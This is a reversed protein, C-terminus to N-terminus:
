REQSVGGPARVADSWGFGLGEDTLLDGRREGVGVGLQGPQQQSAVGEVLQGLLDRFEGGARHGDGGGARDGDGHVSARQAHRRGVSLVVPEHQVPARQGIRARPPLGLPQAPGRADDVGPGPRPGVVRPAADRLHHVCSRGIAAAVAPVTMTM